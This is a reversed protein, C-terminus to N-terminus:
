GDGVVGELGWSTVRDCAVKITGDEEDVRARGRVVFAWPAWGPGHALGDIVVAAVASRRVHEARRTAPVDRGGLVLEHNAEDYSWGGPVVHPMGAQDVTAIRALSRPPHAVFSREAANLTSRGTM